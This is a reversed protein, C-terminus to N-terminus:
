SGLIRGGQLLVLRPRAVPPEWRSRSLIRHMWGRDQELIQSPSERVHVHDAGLTVRSMPTIHTIQEPNVWVSVGSAADHLEIFEFM